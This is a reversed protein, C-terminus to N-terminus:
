RGSVARRAVTRSASLPQVAPAASDKAPTGAAPAAAEIRKRLAEIEKTMRQLAAATEDPKRSEMRRRSDDLSLIVDAFPSLPAM